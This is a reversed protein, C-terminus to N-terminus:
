VLSRILSKIWSIVKIIENRRKNSTYCCQMEDGERLKNIEIENSGDTEIEKIVRIGVLLLDREKIQFYYKYLTYNLVYKRM